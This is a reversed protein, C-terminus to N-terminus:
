DESFRWTHPRSQLSRCLRWLTFFFQWLIILSHIRPPLIYPFTDQSSVKACSFIITIFSFPFVLRLGSSVFLCVFFTQQSIQSCLRMSPILNCGESAKQNLNLCCFYKTLNLLLLYISDCKRCTPIWLGEKLSFGATGKNASPLLSSCIVQEDAHAHTTLRRARTVKLNVHPWFHSLTDIVKFTCADALSM